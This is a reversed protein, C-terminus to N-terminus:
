DTVIHLKAAKRKHNWLQIKGVGHAGVAIVGMAGATVAFAVLNLKLADGVTLDDLKKDLIRTTEEM